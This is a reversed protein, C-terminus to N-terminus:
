VYGLLEKFFENLFNYGQIVIGVVAIIGVVTMAAVFLIWLINKITEGFEYGHIEKVQLFLLFVMWLYIFVHAITYISGEALTLVNSILALPLILLTLPMLAYVSSIMIGKFTGQGKTIAGVLYSSSIWLVVPMVYLLMFSAGSIGRIGEADFVFNTLAREAVMVILFVAYWFLASPLSAKGMRTAEYYSDIPHLMVRPAHAVHTIFSKSGPIWRYICGFVFRFGKGISRLALSFLRIGFIKRLLLTVVFLCALLLVATGVYKQVTDARYKWMADSYYEQNEALRMYRMASVYDKNAYAIKGLGLNAWFYNANAKLIDRWGDEALLYNGDNYLNISSIIKRTLSTPSFVHIGNYNKDLILLTGDSLASIAVPDSFFGIKQENGILKEGFTLLPDGNADYVIVRGNTNDLAFIMGDEDVYISSVASMAGTRRNVSVQTNVTAFRNDGGANFKKIQLSNLTSTCTYIYGNKGVCMGSVSSAVANMNTEIQEQTYFLWKIRELLSIETANRGFYGRFEGDDSMLMLGETSGKLLVYIFGRNDVQVKTPTFMINGLRVDVPASLAKKLQGEATFIVIQALGSDAVYVEGEDTVCVGEPVKLVDAGFEALLRGNVDTKVIRRNNRDAVYIFGDATVYMDSPASFGALMEGQNGYLSQGIISQPLYPCQMYFPRGETTYSYSRYPPEDAAAQLCCTLILLVALVLIIKKM